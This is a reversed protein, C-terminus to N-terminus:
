PARIPRGTSESGSRRDDRGRSLEAPRVRGLLWMPTGGPDGGALIQGCRHPGTVHQSAVRQAEHRVRGVVQGLLVLSREGLVLEEAHQRALHLGPAFRDLREAVAVALVERGLFLGLDRDDRLVQGLCEGLVLDPGEDALRDGRGAGGDARSMPLTMPQSDGRVRPRASPLRTLSSTIWASAAASRAAWAPAWSPPYAGAISVWRMSGVAKVRRSAPRISTAAAPQEDEDQGGDERDVDHGAAEAELDTVDGPGIDDRWPRQRVRAVDCSGGILRGGAVGDLRLVVVRLVLGGPDGIPLGRREPTGDGRDIGREVRRHGIGGPGGQELDDQRGETSEARLVSSPSVGPRISPGARRPPWRGRGPRVPALQAIGVHRRDGRADAAADQAVEWGVLLLQGGLEDGREQDRVGRVALGQGLLGPIAATCATGGCLTKIWCPSFMM